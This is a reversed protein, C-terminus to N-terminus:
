AQRMEHRALWKWYEPDKSFDRKLDSLITNRMEDSHALDPAELIELFHKRLDFSSRLAEIAGGYIAQLVNFGKERFVDVKESADEVDEVISDDNEEKEHVKLKNLYTLEMILYEVWLDESNSCVRLGNQMLARAAAVNLNRDFDWAAAYIWVGAEKPHFRIVQALVKKMRGNRKQRCFELYKFWLGIDGKYRMTALRYIEVIKGGCSESSM